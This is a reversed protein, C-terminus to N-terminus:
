NDVLGKILLDTFAFDYSQPDNEDANFDRFINPIDVYIFMGYAGGVDHLRSYPIGAEKLYHFYATNAFGTVPPQGIGNVANIVGRTKDFDIKQRAGSLCPVLLIAMAILIFRRM